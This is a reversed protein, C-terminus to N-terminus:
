SCAGFEHKCVQLATKSICVLRALFNGCLCIFLFHISSVVDEIYKSM